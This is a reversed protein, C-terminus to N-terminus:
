LVLRSLRKPHRVAIAVSIGCGQSMGLLSFRDLGAADFVTELDTVWADFSVDEIGL